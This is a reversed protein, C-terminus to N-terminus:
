RYRNDDMSGLEFSPDQEIEGSDDDFDFNAEELEKEVKKPDITKAAGFDWIKSHFSADILINEPKM